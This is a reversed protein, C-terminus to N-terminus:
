FYYYYYYDAWPPPRPLEQPGATTVGEAPTAPTMSPANPRGLRLRTAGAGRRPTPKNRVSLSLRMSLRASESPSAMSSTKLLLHHALLAMPSRHRRSSLPSVSLAKTQRQSPFFLAVRFAGSSLRPRRVLHMQRARVGTQLTRVLRRSQDAIAIRSERLASENSNNTPGKLQVNHTFMTSALKGVAMWRGGHRAPSLNLFGCEIAKLDELQLLGFNAWEILTPKIWWVIVIM